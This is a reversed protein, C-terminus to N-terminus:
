KIQSEMSDYSLYLIIYIYIIYLIIGEHWVRDVAKSIDCICIDFSLYFYM